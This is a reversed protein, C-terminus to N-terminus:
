SDIAYGVRGFLAADVGSCQKYGLCLPLGPPQRKAM